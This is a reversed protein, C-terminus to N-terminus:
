GGVRRNRHIQPIIRHGILRATDSKHKDSLRHTLLWAFIDNKFPQTPDYASVPVGGSAVTDQVTEYSWGPKYEFVRPYIKLHGGERFLTLKAKPPSAPHCANIAAVAKHTFVPPVFDDDAAHFAWIPTDMVKQNCAFSVPRTAMEQADIHPNNTYPGYETFYGSIPVAAAIKDGYAELYKWVGAGGMSCGVLYLRDEDIRLERKAKEVVEDIVEPDWALSDDKISVGDEYQGTYNYRGKVETPQHPTLVIFPYRRGDRITRELNAEKLRDQFFGLGDTNWGLGVLSIIVPYDQQNDSDMYGPPLYQLYYFIQGNGYESPYSVVKWQSPATAHSLAVVRIFALCVSISLFLLISLTCFYHKM